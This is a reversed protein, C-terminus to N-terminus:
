HRGEAGEPQIFPVVRDFHVNSGSKADSRSRPMLALEGEPNFEESLARAARTRPTMAMKQLGAETGKPSMAGFPTM